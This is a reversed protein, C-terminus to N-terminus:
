VEIVGPVRRQEPTWEDAQGPRETLSSRGLLQGLLPQQMRVDGIESRIRVQVTVLLGGDAVDGVSSCRQDGRSGTGAFRLAKEIRDDAVAKPQAVLTRVSSDCGDQDVRHVRERLVLESPQM